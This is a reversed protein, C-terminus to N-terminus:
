QRPVAIKSCNSITTAIRHSRSIECTNRRLKKREQPTYLFIRDRLKEKKRDRNSKTTAITKNCRDPHLGPEKRKCNNQKKISFTTPWQMAHGQSHWNPLPLPTYLDKNGHPSGKSISKCPQTTVEQDASQLICICLTPLSRELEILSGKAVEGM